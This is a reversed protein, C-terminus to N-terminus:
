PQICDATVGKCTLFIGSMGGLNTAGVAFIGAAEEANPGYFAGDLMGGGNVGEFSIRTTDTAIIRNSAPDITAGIIQATVPSGDDPFGGHFTANLRATDFNLDLLVTGGIMGSEGTRELSAGARFDGSYSTVGQPLRVNEAGGSMSPAHLLQTFDRGQAAGISINSAYAYQGQLQSLVTAKGNVSSPDGLVTCNQGQMDRCLVTTDRLPGDEIQVIFGNEHRAVQARSVQDGGSAQTLANPPAAPAPTSGSGGGCAAVLLSACAGLAVAHFRIM